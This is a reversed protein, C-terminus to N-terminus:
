SFLFLDVLLAACSTVMFNWCDLVFFVGGFPVFIIYFLVESMIFIDGAMYMNDRVGNLVHKLSTINREHLRSIAYRM